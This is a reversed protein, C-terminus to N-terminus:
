RGHNPHANAPRGEDSDGGPDRSIKQRRLAAEAEARLEEATTPTQRELIARALLLVALEEQGDPAPRWRGDDAQEFGLGWMLAEAEAEVCGLLAAAEAPTRPRAVLVTPLDSPRAGRRDWDGSRAEVVNKAKGFRDRMAQLGQAASYGTGAISMATWLVDFAEELAGWTASFAGPDGAPVALILYPRRPDGDLLGADGARLLDGIPAELPHVDWRARGRLDVTAVRRLHFDKHRLVAPGAEEDGPRVFAAFRLHEEFRGDPNRNRPDSIVRRRDPVKRSLWRRRPTSLRQYARESDLLGVGLLDGARGLVARLTEETAASVTAAPLRSFATGSPRRAKADIWFPGVSETAPLVVRLEV